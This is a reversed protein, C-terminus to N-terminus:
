SPYVRDERVMSNAPAQRSISGRGSSDECRDARRQESGFVLQQVMAGLCFLLTNTMPTPM